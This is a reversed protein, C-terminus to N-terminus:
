DRGPTGRRCASATATVRLFVLRAAGRDRRDAVAFGAPAAIEEDAAIEVVALAGDALWGRAALGELCSVALGSHYPPDLFALTCPRSAPPPRAADAHIVRARADEGLARINAHIAAMSRPHLEIFSAHAAGRSLAELGLAGSGAFCDVVVADEMEVLDTHCLIDFLAQRVRDATPRATLGPPAELRRGKHLGAVIRM